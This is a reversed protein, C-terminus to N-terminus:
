DHTTSETEAEEDETPETVYIYAKAMAGYDTYAVIAASGEAAAVIHGSQDTTVIESDTSMYTVGDEVATGILELDYEEGPSLYLKFDTFGMAKGNVTNDIVDDATQYEVYSTESNNQEELYKRYEEMEEPYFMDYIAETREFSQDLLTANYKGGDVFEFSEVM